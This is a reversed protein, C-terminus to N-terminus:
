VSLEDLLDLRALLTQANEDIIRADSRRLRLGIFLIGLVYVCSIDHAWIEHGGREQRQKLLRGIHVITVGSADDVDRANGSQHLDRLAVTLIKTNNPREMLLVASVDYV